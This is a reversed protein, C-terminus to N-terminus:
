YAKVCAALAEAFPKAWAASSGSWFSLRLASYADSRKVGMSLLAKSPEPTEAECASGAAVNWGKEALMRVLTAGQIGPLLLHLIYPSALAEPVSFRLKGPLAKGLEEKFAAKTEAAKGLREELTVALREAAFALALCAPAPCRGLRHESSRIAKLAKGLLKSPDDRFLLAAGAPTGIKSGSVTAFDLRAQSWPIPLKCASQTTDALLLAKPAREDMVARIAALDQVAGTEAQVHHTAVLALKEDLLGKLSELDLSGDKSLRAKLLPRGTSACYRELAKALAPHEADSTAVAGKRLSSHAEVAALLADTGSSTWLVGASADQVLAKALRKAAESVEKAAQLSLPGAGEQNAPLRLACDVFFALTEPDAPAAAANDLHATTGTSGSM